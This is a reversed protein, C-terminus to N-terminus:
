FCKEKSTGVLANQQDIGVLYKIQGEFQFGTTTVDFAACRQNSAVLFDKLEAPLNQSSRWEVRETSPDISAQYAVPTGFRIGDVSHTLWGPAVGKEALSEEFM